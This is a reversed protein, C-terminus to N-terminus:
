SNKVFENLINAAKKSQSERLHTYIEMTMELSSHGLLMQAEKLGVGAEYLTTAYAHRLQHPTLRVGVASVYSKWLRQFQSQTMPLGDWGFVYQENSQKKSLIKALPDLLPIVRNGAATKPLKIKPQNNDFYLSKTIHIEKKKFDIDKYQLGLAEGRRCGTYLLFYAFLGFPATVGQKVLEIEEESPLERVSKPLNKPIKVSQAPNYALDGSSVAYTLILRIVLLQTQVTKMAYGSRSFDAIFENIKHATLDKVRIDGFQDAARQYAPTYNKKSNYALHEFRVSRWEEAIELFTRGKEKETQYSSIKKNLEAVTKGYFHVSKGDIKVAKELLGDARRKQKKRQQQVGCWNCYLSGEPIEKKCKRCLM